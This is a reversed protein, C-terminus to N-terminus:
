SAQYKKRDKLTSKLKRIIMDKDQKNVNQNVRNEGLQLDIDTCDRSDDIRSNKSIVKSRNDIDKSEEVLKNSIKNSRDLVKFLLSEFGIKNTYYLRRFVSSFLIQTSVM